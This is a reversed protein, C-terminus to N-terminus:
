LGRLDISAKVPVEVTFTSGKDVESEVLITGGLKQMIGYSISLGLGTGKGKEKTTFFPEFIHKLVEKPIGHGNDRMIVQLTEEDKKETAIALTGGDKLADIANNAINLFVQQLLGRDSEVKPLNESLNMDLHLNRYLIEKELFGIVEKITENIDIIELSVDMRRAFGLLRQTITRCRDVSDTISFVISLFKERNPFDGILQLIDRMLGAKENIVALPNNIEHAIGAALRGISALKSTHETEAIAAERRQEAEQVRNVVSSTIISNAVSGMIVLVIILYLTGVDKTFLEIMKSSATSQVVMGLVWSSQKIHAYGVELRVGDRKYDMFSLDQAPVPFKLAARELMKGHFRSSTQLISDKNIIFADDYEKLQISSLFRNLTEVDVTARLVWFAHKGPMEKRVAIAFHPMKRYGTFVDSIYVGRISVEQFWDQNSYDRGKLNYPGAYSLQIGESTILGLDVIEGFEKRFKAFITHLITDDSLEELSYANTLFRLGALKEQLFSEISRQSDEMQWRLHDRFEDKLINFVWFYSIMAIGLLPLGALTGIYFFLRLKLSKYRDKKIANVINTFPRLISQMFPTLAPDGNRNMIARKRKM